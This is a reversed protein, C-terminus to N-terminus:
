QFKVAVFQGVHDAAFGIESDVYLVLIDEEYDSANITQSWNNSETLPNCQIEVVKGESNGLQVSIRSISDGVNNASITLEKSSTMIPNSVADGLTTYGTVAVTNIFMQPNTTDGVQQTAPQAQVTSETETNTPSQEATETEATQSEPLVVKFYQYTQKPPVSSDSICIAVLITGNYDGLNMKTSWNNDSYLFYEDGNDGGNENETWVRIRSVDQDFGVVAQILVSDGNSFSSLNVAQSNLADEKSYTQVMAGNFFINVSSVAVASQSSNEPESNSGSETAEVSELESSTTSEITEPVADTTSEPNNGSNTAGLALLLFISVVVFFIVGIIWKLIPDLDRVWDIADEFAYRIKRFMFDESEALM